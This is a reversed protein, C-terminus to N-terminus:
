SLMYICLVAPPKSDFLKLLSASTKNKKKNKQMFVISVVVTINLHCNFNTSSCKIQQVADM